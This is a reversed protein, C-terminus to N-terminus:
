SLVYSVHLYHIRNYVVTAMPTPVEDFCVFFFLLSFLLTYITVNYPTCFLFKNVNMYKTGPYRYRHVVHVQVQIITKITEVLVATIIFAFNM